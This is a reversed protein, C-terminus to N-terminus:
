TSVSFSRDFDIQGSVIRDPNGMSKIQVRHTLFKRSNYCYNYLPIISFILLKVVYDLPLMMKVEEYMSVNELIAM